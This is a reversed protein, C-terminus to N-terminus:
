IYAYFVFCKKRREGILATLINVLGTFCFVRLALEFRDDFVRDFSIVYLLVNFKKEHSGVPSLGAHACCGTLTSFFVCYTVTEPYLRLIQMMRTVEIFYYVIPTISYFQENDM